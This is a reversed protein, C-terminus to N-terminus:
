GRAASMRLTLARVGAMEPDAPRSDDAFQTDTILPPAGGLSAVMADATRVAEKRARQRLPDLKPQVARRRSISYVGSEVLPVRYGNEECWRRIREADYERKYAPSHGLARLKEATAEVDVTQTDSRLSDPDIGAMACLQELRELDLSTKFFLSFYTLPPQTKSKVRRGADDLIREVQRTYEKYQQYLPDALLKLVVMRREIEAIREEEDPRLVQADSATAAQLAFDVKQRGLVHDWALDGSELVARLITGDWPVEVAVVEAAAYDYYVILLGDCALPKDGSLRPAADSGAAWLLWDYHHIQCAYQTPAVDKAESVSKYDVLYRKVKRGVRMDVVDDPNARGWPHAQSRAERLANILDPRSRAGYDALFTERIDDEMLVGRRIYKDVGEITRRLLKQAIVESPTKFLAPVGLRWAGLEGVDSGGFGSLREYHWAFREPERAVAAEYWSRADTASVRPAQPLRPLWTRMFEDISPLSATAM